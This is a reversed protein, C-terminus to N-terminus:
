SKSDMQAVCLTKKYNPRIRWSRIEHKLHLGDMMKGVIKPTSWGGDQRSNETYDMWWRTWRTNQKRHLGDVMKGVIKPPLGDVMKGEAKPIIWGSDEIRSEIYDMRWRTMQKRHLGAM